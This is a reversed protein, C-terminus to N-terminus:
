HCPNGARGGASPAKREKGPKKRCSLIATAPLTQSSPQAKKSFRPTNRIEQLLPDQQESDQLLIRLIEEPTPDFDGGDTANMFDDHAVSSGLPPPSGLPEETDSGSGPEYYYFDSLDVTSSIHDASVFPSPM